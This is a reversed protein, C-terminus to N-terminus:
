GNLVEKVLSYGGWAVYSNESNGEVKRLMMKRRPTYDPISKGEYNKILLKALNIGYVDRFLISPTTIRANIDVVFVEEDNSLIVDVGVYGFLGKISEVAKLATEVVDERFDFPVIAGKYRFSEIIQRNISLVEVSDGVILSVSLDIGKIFEQAIYGDPVNDAIRIGEGGCSVRPKIIFPPDIPKLSTKPMEVKGKLKQYLTWKDSTIAIAESSSGLNPVEREEVIKTLKLLNWDTEPAIVLAFDSKELHCVFKDDCDFTIVDFGVGDLGIFSVVDCFEVFGEYLSKFMGLGEVAIEAPLGGLCTAFEFLFVKM